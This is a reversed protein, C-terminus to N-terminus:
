SSAAVTTMRASPNSAPLCREMRWILCERGVAGGLGVVNSGGAGQKYPKRVCSLLNIRSSVHGYLRSILYDPNSPSGICGQALQGREGRAIGNPCHVKQRHRAIALLGPRPAMYSSYLPRSLPPMRPPRSVASPWGQSSSVTGGTRGSAVPRRRICTRSHSGRRGRGRPGEGSGAGRWASRLGAPVAPRVRSQGGQVGSCCRDTMWSSPLPRRRVVSKSRHALSESRCNATTVRAGPNTWCGDPRITCPDQSM